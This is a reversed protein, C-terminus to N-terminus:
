RNSLPAYVDEANVTEGKIFDALSRVLDAFQRHAAQQCPIATPTTFFDDNLPEEYKLSGYVRRLNTFRVRMKEDKVDVTMTFGMKLNVWSGEPTIETKCNRVISGSANDQNGSVVQESKLNNAVWRVVRNYVETKPHNPLGEIFEHTM